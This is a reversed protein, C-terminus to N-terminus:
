IRKSTVICLVHKHPDDYNNALTELMEQVTSHEDEVYGTQTM